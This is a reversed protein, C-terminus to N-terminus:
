SFNLFIRDEFGRKERSNLYKLVRVIFSTWFYHGLMRKTWSGFALMYIFFKYKNPFELLSKKYLKKEKYLSRLKM